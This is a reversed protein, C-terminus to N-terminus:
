SGVIVNTSKSIHSARRSISHVVRNLAELSASEGEPNSGEKSEDQPSATVLYDLKVEAQELIANTERLRGLIDKLSTSEKQTVESM